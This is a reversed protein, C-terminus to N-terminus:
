ICCTLGNVVVSSLVSKLIAGGNVWQKWGGEDQWRSHQSTRDSWVRSESSYARVEIEGMFYKQSINVLLRNPQSTASPQHQNTRLSSYQQSTVAPQQHSTRESLFTSSAPPQYASRVPQLHFHPLVAPDFILYTLAEGEPSCGSSPVAVWQETAPNCVAYDQAGVGSNWGHEFLFLGNCSDLLKLNEIGPVKTLFSFFPDFLPAPRGPLSVFIQGHFGAGTSASYFFGELTQPLRKRNFPDAILDRWAKSVCKFRHISRVPVRSLIEV